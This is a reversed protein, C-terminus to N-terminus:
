GGTTGQQDSLLKQKVQSTIIDIKALVDPALNKPIIFGYSTTGPRKKFTLYANTEDEVRTLFLFIGSISTDGPEGELAYRMTSSLETDFTLLIDGNNQKTIDIIRSEFYTGLYDYAVFIDFPKLQFAYDVDGYRDYLSSTYTSSASTFTPLFIYDPSYFSGLSSTIALQNSSMGYPLASSSFAFYSSLNGQSAYAYNGVQNVLATVTFDGPPVISATYINKISNQAYSRSISVKVEANTALSETKSITFYKTQPVPSSPSSIDPIDYATFDANYDRRNGGGSCSRSSRRFIISSYLTYFTYPIPDEAQCDTDNWNKYVNYRYRYFTHGTYYPTNGIILNHQLRTASGNLTVSAVGTLPDDIHGGNYIQSSPLTSTPIVFNFTQPYSTTGNPTVLKLAFSASGAQGASNMTIVVSADIKYSGGEQITYKAETSTYSFNLPEEYAYNFPPGKMYGTGGDLSYGLIPDGQIYYSSSQFKARGRYTPSDGVHDFYLRTDKSGSGYLVPYYAYGSDFILKQGDTFKQNTFKKNDFLSINTIDGMLFTNQVDEWHKNRQNLETLGGFEDVLYKLSVPNRKPLLSSSAIQTFLGIKRVQKDVAATKGYSIDGDLITFGDSGTFSASTYNNYLLSTLKVGDYRSKNYSQLTLYSDQLESPILISSTTGYFYEIHQRNLSLVSSSVNNLLVNFDSYQFDQSTYPSTPTSVLIITGKSDPDYVLFPAPALPNVYIDEANVITYDTYNSEGCKYYRVIPAEGGSYRSISYIACEPFSLYPNYNDEFYQYINVDSGTINGDYWAKKDGKLADYFHGYDSSIGSASYNANYVSQTTTTIPNAYVAKNRELVPSEFTVGTSLSTREPVFDEFMKFLANDFYEILRIFGNYDLASGTFPAYGPVGTQYYKIRQQDLPIYSSSYLYRPDGIYDDLSWTANSSSISKSIYTNIQSQPSFSIDVYNLDDDRFQSSATPYTQLSMIPSLVSGTVIENSVIRVKDNNYGKLLGSKLSGGYEKVNLISATYNSGTPTYFSSSVSGSIITYYGRNPIGFITMLNDLGEVTGKTKLLLPLNHYIRKYLESVLDKRPVNNLYSSTPSFDNNWISSGTNAGILFSDLAEGAQSNYLKIGLSQLQNYVLDKSIGKNLNNNALNVDTIAKLYIWINDFYQGIMNLFTLYPANSSDSNIFDPVSYILNNNNKEDYEQSLLSQTTFWNIVTSSGTSLLKYPKLSGSKPWTYSGSGLSSSYSSSEFYLYTEYGDFQSILTTISSSYFNIETQLSSTTAVYPTYKSILTTYDEIQKVKTYFNNLRQYASGFFVFNGFDDSKDVDYNVNIQISQTNLLNQIQNYSSSQLSQLNNVATQYNLYPTSITGGEVPADFNPGRLTPPPPPIILKDLNIDFSYSNVKENVVWLTDKEQIELPLPNYLKFLIEYGETAKNLAVNVAVYQKNNGFNLLYDVYYSSNNVEDIMSLSVSEIEDNTLTTSALRVETRDLSIEKVFLAQDIPNSLKNQFFFYKTIFEGSSYGLNQIDQVPDIEIIPYLSSTQSALTSDIGVNTTQINGTTNPPNSTGPKLGTSPPLKYDLYNYTNDLLNNGADYTYYEIYDGTGGFYEQLNTSAILAADKEDYRSVTSTNIINGVIKINDAM